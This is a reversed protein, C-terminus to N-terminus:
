QGTEGAHEPDQGHLLRSYVKLREELLRKDPLHTLYEAVKMKHPGHRLLLEVHQRRASTCLILGVPENEGQRWDHEKLWALYLDMQGKDAAQEFYFQRQMPDSISLLM